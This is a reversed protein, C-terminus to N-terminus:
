QAKPGLNDKLGRFGQLVQRARLEQLDKLDLIVKRDRHVQRGKLDM